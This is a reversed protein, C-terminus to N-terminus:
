TSSYIPLRSMQLNHQNSNSCLFRSSHFVFLLCSGLYTPSYFGNNDSWFATIETPTVCCSDSSPCCAYQTPNFVGMYLFGDAVNIPTSADSGNFQALLNFPAGLPQDVTCTPSSSSTTSSSTTSPTTSSTQLSQSQTVTVFSTVTATAESISTITSMVTVTQGPGTEIIEDTITVLELVPSTITIIDVYTSTIFEIVTSAVSIVTLSTSTILEV